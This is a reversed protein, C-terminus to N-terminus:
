DGDDFDIPEDCDVNDILWSITTHHNCGSACGNCVKWLLFNGYKM